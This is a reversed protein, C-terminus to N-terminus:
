KWDLFALRQFIGFSRLVNPSVDRSVEEVFRLPSRIRERPFCMPNTANHPIRSEPVLIQEVQRSHLFHSAFKVLLERDRLLTLYEDRKEQVEQLGAAVYKLDPFEKNIKSLLDILDGLSTRRGDDRRVNNTHLACLCRTVYEPIRDAINPIAEWTVWLSRMYREPDAGYFYKFDFCSTLIENLEHWNLRVYQKLSSPSLEESEGDPCSMRWIGMCLLSRVQEFLNDGGNKLNLSRIAPVFRDEPEDPKALVRGLIGSIIVHSIEHTVTLLTWSLTNCSGVLELPASLTFHTTKYGDRGSFFTLLPLIPDKKADDSLLDLEAKDRALHDKNWFDDDAPIEVLSVSVAPDRELARIRKIINARDVAKEIFSRINALALAPIGIGLFSHNWLRSKTETIPTTGSYMQTVHLSLAANTYVLIDQKITSDYEKELVGRCISDFRILEKENEPLYLAARAVASAIQTVYERSNTELNPLCGQLPKLMSRPILSDPRDPGGWYIDKVTNKSLSWEEWFLNNQEAFREATKREKASSCFVLVNFLGNTLFAHSLSFFDLEGPYIPGCFFLWSQRLSPLKPPPSSTLGFIPSLRTGITWEKIVDEYRGFWDVKRSKGDRSRSLRLYYVKGRLLRIM